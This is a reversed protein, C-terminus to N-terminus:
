DAVGSTMKHPSVHFECDGNSCYVAGDGVLAREPRVELDHRCGECIAMKDRLSVHAQSM